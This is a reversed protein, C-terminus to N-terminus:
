LLIAHQLVKSVGQICCRRFRMCNPRGQQYPLLLHPPETSVKGTSSYAGINSAVPKLKHIMFEFYFIVRIRGWEENRNEEFFALKVSIKAKVRM